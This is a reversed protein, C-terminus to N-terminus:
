WNLPVSGESVRLLLFSVFFGPIKWVLGGPEYIEGRIRIRAPPFGAMVAM